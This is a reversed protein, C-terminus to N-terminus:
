KTCYKMILKDGDPKGIEKIQNLYNCASETDNLKIYSVACNFLADIDYADMKIAKKFNEIAKEYNEKEFYKVGKNYYDTKTPCGANKMTFNFPVTYRVNRATDNQYGPTWLGDTKKIWYYAASDLSPHVSKYVSVSDVGGLSDIIFNVFVRGMLCNDRAYYPYPVSYLYKVFAEEGGKFEPMKEVKTFQCNGTMKMFVFLLLFIYKM